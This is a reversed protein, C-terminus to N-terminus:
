GSGCAFSRPRSRLSRLGAPRIQVVFDLDGDHDVDELSGIRGSKGKEKALVGELAVTAPDVTTADFTDTTLIAVPIVGGTNPHIGNPL